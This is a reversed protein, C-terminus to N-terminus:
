VAAMLVAAAAAVLVYSAPDRIADTVPDDGLSERTANFWTRTVWYLFLPCLWMLRSPHSYLAVVEPSSSYLALVLVAMYGASIGVSHMWRSDGSTYGRGALTGGNPATVRVETYRKVLALNLFFFMAFALLWNSIATQTAVGGAYIRLVYLGTLVFVDAVPMRKIHFSYATSALVYLGLVATVERSVTAIALGLALVLLGPVLLLGIPVPLDGSAFPRHRKRPHRRDAQLDLLDNAVYVSSACLSFAAFTLVTSFVADIEFLRHSTVLPVFLLLNKAWQHPRLARVVARVVRREGGLVQVGPCDRRLRRLLARSAGVVAGGQASTWAPLDVWGNGVYDFGGAGFREELRRAKRSGSLNEVGDSALVASFLGLHSAVAAALTEDAGTALVVEHGESRMQQIFALVEPRYPLGPADVLARRAIERKVHAKGRMRWLPLLVLVWPRQRIVALLTEWFLDGAILTGDLDVCLV